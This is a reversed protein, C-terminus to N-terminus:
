GTVAARFADLTRAVDDDSTQWNSVSLRIAEARRVDNREDV